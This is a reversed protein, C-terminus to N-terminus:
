APLGVATAVIGSTLFSPSLVVILGEPLEVAARRWCRVDSLALQRVMWRASSSGDRATLTEQPAPAGM